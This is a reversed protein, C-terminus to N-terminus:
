MFELTGMISEARKQDVLGQKVVDKTAIDRVRNIIRLGFDGASYAHGYRFKRRYNKLWKKVKPNHEMADVTADLCARIAGFKASQNHLAELVPGNEWYVPLGTLLVSATQRVRDREFSLLAPTSDEVARPIFEGFFLFRKRGVRFTRHAKLAADSVVAAEKELDSDFYERFAEQPDDSSFLAQLTYALYGFRHQPFTRNGRLSRQRAYSLGAVAEKLRISM